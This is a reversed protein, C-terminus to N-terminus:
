GHGQAWGLADLKPAFDVAALRFAEARVCAGAAEDRSRDESVMNQHSVRAWLDVEDLGNGVPRRWRQLEDAPTAFVPVEFCARIRLSVDGAIKAFVADLWAFDALELDGETYLISSAQGAECVWLCHVREAVEPHQVPGALSEM